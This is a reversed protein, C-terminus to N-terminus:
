DAGDEPAWARVIDRMSIIGVVEGVDVVVLHRFGGRRMTEAAVELTWSPDAYAAEFTLHDGAKAEDVHRGAAIARVIDRETLIGPGQADTDIVVVSGVNRDAMFRSAERLTHAPGVSVVQETMTDRVIM